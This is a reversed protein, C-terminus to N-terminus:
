KTKISQLILHTVVEKRQQIFLSFEKENMGMIRTIMPKAAFPFICLSLMNVLLQRPDILKIKGERGEKAIQELLSRVVGLAERPIFSRTFQEPNQNIEHLVFAPLFPNERLADIYSHIFATIKDTLLAEASWIDIFKPFLHQLAERFVAEFLQDKSRFYYHLLAKNIGAKDAIDQMRAGHLGKRHFVIRAANLIKQETTVSKQM